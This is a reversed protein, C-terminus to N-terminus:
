PDMHISYKWNSWIVTLPFIIEHRHTHTHIIHYAKWELALYKATHGLTITPLGLTKSFSSCIWQSHLNSDFVACARLPWHQTPFTHNKKSIPKHKSHTVILENYNGLGTSDLAVGGGFPGTSTPVINQSIVIVPDDYTHFANTSPVPKRPIRCILIM